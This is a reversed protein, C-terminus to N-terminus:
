ADRKGERGHLSRPTACPPKGLALPPRGEVAPRLTSPHWLREAELRDPNDASSQAEIPALPPRLAIAPLAGRSNIAGVKRVSSAKSLPASTARGTTRANAASSPAPAM